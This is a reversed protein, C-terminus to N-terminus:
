ASCSFCTDTEEDYNTCGFPKKTNETKEEIYSVPTAVPRSKLYYSLTKLGKKWAYIYMSTLSATTPNAMFINMSSAQDIFPSRVAVFDIFTRKSVEWATKYMNKLHIPINLQQVSGQNVIINNIVNDNLIGLEKFKKYMYKNVIVFEGNLAKKTYINSNVVSFSESLDSLVSTTKSPMHAILLSNRLGYLKVDEILANWDLYVECYQSSTLPTVNSMHYQLIGKSAPSGKFESYTNKRLALECSKKVAAYYMCEAILTNVKLAEQNPKGHEDEWALDMEMFADHLGQIGLGIPRMRSNNDKIKNTSYYTIDITKDLNEIAIGTTEMLAAYDFKKDETVFKTICISALNCASISTATQTQMIETCQGTLTGGFVGMHRKPETFCYTDVGKQGPEVSQIRVFKSVSRSPIGPTYETSKPELGLTYLTHVDASNISLTYINDHEPHHIMNSEVGLTQLMLMVKIFFDKQYSTIHLTGYVKHIVGSADVLGSLWDIRDKISSHLPVDFQSRIDEPLHVDITKPLYGIASHTYVLHKMVKQLKADLAITNDIKGGSGCFVGHTYAYKFKEPSHIEIPKNPLKLKILKDQLSLQHAEKMVYDEPTINNRKGFPMVYFKHQPTCELEFGNTFTIKLLDQNTNTKKPIVKSWEAGNWVNVPIDVLSKIDIQGQDTLIHTEGSVCLNSCTIPGANMQANKRNVADKSCMYPLGCESLSKVVKHWLESMSVQKYFLGKSELELYRKEFEESHLTILEPFNKPSFLSWKTDPEIQCKELRKFFLDPIWLAIFIDRARQEETGGPLRAELFEEIDPHWPQLYCAVAGLRKGSQNVYRAICNFVQMLPIIGTSEGGTGEIFEGKGRVHTLDVGIGGAYKSIAACDAWCEPISPSEVMSDPCTLLNCSALQGNHMGANFLTPSAHTYKLTSLLEYTKLVDTIRRDVINIGCAVRMYLYQPCEIFESPYTAGKVESTRKLFSRIFMKYSPYSFQYDRNLDIANDLITENEKIFEVVNPNMAPSLIDIADTFTKPIDRHLQGWVIRSAFTAYDINYTSISYAVESLLTTLQKVSVKEPLENIIKNTLHDIDINLGKSKREIFNKLKDRSFNEITNEQTIVFM